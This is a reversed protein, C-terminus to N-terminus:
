CFLAIIPFLDIFIMIGLLGIYVLMLRGLFIYYHDTKTCHEQDGKLASIIKHLDDGLGINAKVAEDDINARVM